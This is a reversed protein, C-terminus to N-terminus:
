VIYQVKKVVAHSFALNKKERKVDAKKVRDTIELIDRYTALEARSKDIAEHLTECSSYIEERYLDPKLGTVFIKAIEKKICGILKGLLTSGFDSIKLM